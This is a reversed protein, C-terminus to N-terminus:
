MEIKINREEIDLEIQDADYNNKFKREITIHAMNSRVNYHGKAILINNESFVRVYFSDIDRSEVRKVIM